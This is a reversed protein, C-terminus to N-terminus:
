TPRNAPKGRQRRRLCVFGLLGVAGCVGYTSAEPVPTFGLDVLWPAPRGDPSVGHGVIYRGDGSIGVVERLSWGDLQEGIGYESTLLEVLNRMGMEATWVFVGTVEDFTGTSLITGAILKGNGSIATASAGGTEPLLGLSVVGTEVTWRFPQISDSEADSATFGVIVTGDDSVGAANGFSPDPGLGVIGTEETWRV